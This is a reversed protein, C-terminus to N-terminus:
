SVHGRLAEEVGKEGRVKQSTGDSFTVTYWGKGTQRVIPDGSPTPEEPRAESQEPALEIFQGRWWVKLRYDGFAEKIEPTVPDGPAVTGVGCCNLVMRRRFVLDASPDFHQKWHRAQNM